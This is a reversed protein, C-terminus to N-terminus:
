CNDILKQMNGMGYELNVHKTFEDSFFTCNVDLYALVSIDTTNCSTTPSSPSYTSTASTPLVVVFLLTTFTAATFFNVKM